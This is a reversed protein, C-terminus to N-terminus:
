ILGKSVVECAIETRNLLDILVDVYEFDANEEAKLEEEILKSLEADLMNMLIISVVKSKKNEM